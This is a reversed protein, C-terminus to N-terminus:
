VYPDNATNNRRQWDNRENVIREDRKLAAKALATSASPDSIIDALFSNLLNIRLTYYDSDDM